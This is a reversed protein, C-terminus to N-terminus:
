RGGMIDSPRLMGGRPGPTPGVNGPAAGGGLASLITLRNLKDPDPPPPATLRDYASPGQQMQTAHADMMQSPSMPARMQPGMGPAVQGPTPGYNMPQAGVMTPNAGARGGGMGMPASMPPQQGPGQHFLPNLFAQAGQSAGATGRDIGGQVGGMTGRYQDAARRMAAQRQQQAQEVNANDSKNSFAGIISPVAAAILPIAAAM